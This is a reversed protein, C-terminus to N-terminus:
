RGAPCAFACIACAHKRGILKRHAVRWSNCSFADLLRERGCGPSWIGGTIARAPCVAVCLGCDFCESSTVPTGAEPGRSVLISALGVLPGLRTSVLMANRGVFGLGALTAATKSQVCASLTDEDQGSPRFYEIGLEDLLGEVVSCSRLLSEEAAANREHFEAEDYDELPPAPRDPYYSRLIVLAKPFRAPASDGLRSLDACGWEQIPLGDLLERVRKEEAVNM